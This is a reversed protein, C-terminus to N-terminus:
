QINRKKEKWNRKRGKAKGEWMVNDDRKNEKRNSNGKIEM